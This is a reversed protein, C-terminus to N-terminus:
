TLLRLGSPLLSGLEQIAQIAETVLVELLHCLIWEWRPARRFQWQQLGPSPMQTRVAVSVSVIWCAFSAHMLGFYM